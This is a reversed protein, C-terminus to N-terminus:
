KKPQTYRQYALIAWCITTALTALASLTLSLSLYSLSFIALVVTSIASTSLEPKQKGRITPILSAVFIWSGISFVWDQWPM